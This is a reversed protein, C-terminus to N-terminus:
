LSELPGVSIPKKETTATKFVKLPVTKNTDVDFISIEKDNEESAADFDTEV